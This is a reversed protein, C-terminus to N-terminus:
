TLQGVFKEPEDPTLIFKYSKTTVLVVKDMRTAYWTMRGLKSNWFKGFYGFLGGVGFTRISLRILKKDIQEVSLIESKAIEINKVLRHVTIKGSEVSYTIPRYAFALFYIILVLVTTYIPLAKGADKIFAYQGGIIIIFLITIVITIIKATTGLSTKFRM